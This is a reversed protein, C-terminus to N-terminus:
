VNGFVFMDGRKQQQVKGAVRIGVGLRSTQGIDKFRGSYGCLCEAFAVGVVALQIVIKALRIIRGRNLVQLKNISCQLLGPM